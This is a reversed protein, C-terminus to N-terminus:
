YELLTKLLSKLEDLHIPRTLCGQIVTEPVRNADDPAIDEYSQIFAIKAKPNYESIKLACTLGDMSSMERALLVVDPRLTKYKKLAEAGSGAFAPRFLLAHLMNKLPLLNEVVDDVALIKEKRWDSDSLQAPPQDPIEILTKPLSIKFVTGMDPESKVHIDGGHAKIVTYSTSLGIGTGHIPEKTTFFPDFCRAITETDMGVGNDSVRIEIWDDAVAATISLLGGDPMADRANTALNLVVQGLDQHNGIVPLPTPIHTQIDIKQPFAERILHCVGQITEALDMTEQRQIDPKRSLWILRDILDSGRKAANHIGKVTKILKHHSYYRLEILQCSILIGALINRFNHAVGAALSGMAKMKQAQQFETELRKKVNETQRRADREKQLKQYAIRLKEGDAMLKKRANRELQLARDLKNLLFGVPLSTVLSVISINMVFMFWRSFPAEFEATWAKNEPDVSAFLVMLIIANIAVAAVAARHGFMLAAVVASMVLWGSRAHHPGFISFFTVILVYLLIINTFFRIRYSIGRIIFQFILILWIVIDLGILGYRKESLFTPVDAAVALPVGFIFLVTLINVYWERWTELGSPEDESMKGTLSKLRKKLDM